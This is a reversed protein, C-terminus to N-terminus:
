SFDPLDTLVDPPPPKPSPPKVKPKRPGETNRTVRPGPKMGIKSFEDMNARKTLRKEMNQQFDPDKQIEPFDKALDELKRMRAYLMNSKVAMHGLEEIDLERRRNDFTFCSLAMYEGSTKNRRVNVHFGGLGNLHVSEGVRLRLMVEASLANLVKRLDAHRYKTKWALNDILAKYRTSRYHAQAPNDPHIKARGM